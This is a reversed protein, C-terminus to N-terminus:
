PRSGSIQAKILEPNELLAIVQAWVPEDIEEIRSL